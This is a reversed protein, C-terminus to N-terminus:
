QRLLVTELVLAQKISIEYDIKALVVIGNFLRGSKHLDRMKSLTEVIEILIKPTAFVCGTADDGKAACIEAVRGRRAIKTILKQGLAPVPRARAKTELAGFAGIVEDYRKSYKSYSDRAGGGELASFLTLTQQNAQNLEAVFAKDGPPALSITCATLFLILPVSVVRFITAM